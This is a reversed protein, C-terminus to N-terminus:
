LMMIELLNFYKSYLKEYKHSDIKGRNFAVTMTWIIDDNLNLINLNDFNMSLVYLKPNTYNSILSLPQIIDSGLYFGKGFDCQSRSIPNIPGSIGSKSGHFYINKHNLKYKNSIDNFKNMIYVILDIDYKLCYDYLSKQIMENPTTIGQEWRNVTAFAVGIEEAFNQQTLNRNTRIYKILDKM